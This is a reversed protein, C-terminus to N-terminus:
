IGFLTLGASFNESCIQYTKSQAFQPMMEKHHLIPGAFYTTSLTINKQKTVTPM